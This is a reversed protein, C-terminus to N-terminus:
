QIEVRDVDRQTKSVVIVCVCVGPSALARFQTARTYRSADPTKNRSLIWHGMAVVCTKPTVYDVKSMTSISTRVKIYHNIREVSTFRAETEALLRVTFQFLGTLQLHFFASLLPLNIILLTVDIKM